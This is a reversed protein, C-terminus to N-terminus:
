ARVNIGENLVGGGCCGGLEIGEREGGCSGGMIGGPGGGFPVYESWREVDGM